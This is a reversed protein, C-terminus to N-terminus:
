CSTYIFPKSDPADVNDKTLLKIPSRTTASIDSQKLTGRAVKALMQVSNFGEYYFGQSVLADFTGTKLLNVEKADADYAVFPIKGTLGAERVATAMGIATSENQGYLGSIEPHARLAAATQQAATNPDAKSYQVPLIKIDPDHASMYSKFGGVREVDVSTGPIYSDIFVTGKHGMKDALYQAALAGGQTNDPGIFTLGVPQKPAIDAVVVNTGNKVATELPGQMGNPDSPVVIVGDPKTQLYSNLLPVEESASFGPTGNFKVDIGGLQAAASKAGCYLSQYSADTDLGLVIGFHLTKGGAAPSGNATAASATGAGSASATSRGAPTGSGSSCAALSGVLISVGLLMSARSGLKHSM